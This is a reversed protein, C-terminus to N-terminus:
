NAAEIGWLGYIGGAVMLCQPPAYPNEATPYGKWNKTSFQYFLWPRYMLPIVPMDKMFVRNLKRYAAIMEEEERIRPIALLLSDAVPNRYRGENEYM